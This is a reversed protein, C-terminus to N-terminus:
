VKKGGLFSMQIPIALFNTVIQAWLVGWVGWYYIMGVLLISKIAPLVFSVIYLEKTKQQSTLAVQVVGSAISFFSLSYVQTFPISDGYTPFFVHFIWPAIAAYSAACIGLFLLLWGMKKVIFNKVSAESKESFKPLAINSIFKIGGAFKEPLLTAFSYVALAAPGIFHFVLLADLQASVGGPLAMASLHAGYPITSPDTKDNPPVKKLVWYYMILNGLFGFFFNGFAVWVFNHTFYLFIITGSYSIITNAFGFYTGVRFLKKGGMYASWTNWANAAPLFLAVWIFATSIDANGNMLYWVAVAFAIVTPIIGLIIQFRVTKRLEGEYGKAVARALASNMGTLTTASILGAISLIYQYDGFQTKTLLRAFLISSVFGFLSVLFYNANGWFTGSAIYAMDIKFFNGLRAIVGRVRSVLSNKIESM